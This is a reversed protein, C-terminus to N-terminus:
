LVHPIEMSPYFVKRRPKGRFQTPPELGEADIGLGQDFCVIFAAIQLRPVSTLKIMGGEKEYGGLFERLVVETRPSGCSM